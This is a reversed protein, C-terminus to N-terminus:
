IETLLHNPFLRVASREAIEMAAYVDQLTGNVVALVAMHNADSDCVGIRWAGGPLGEVHQVFREVWMVLDSGLTVTILASPRVDLRGDESGTDDVHIAPTTYYPVKRVSM